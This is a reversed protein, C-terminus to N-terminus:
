NGWGTSGENGEELTGNNVDPITMGPVDGSTQIVECKSLYCWEMGPTEYKYKM